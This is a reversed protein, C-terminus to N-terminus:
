FDARLGATITRGPRITLNDPEGLQGGLLNDATFLLGLGRALDRSAMIRLHTDGDYARWYNRLRPGTLDRKPPGNKSLYATALALQDYNMWDSARTATFAGFWTAGTWSATISASRGPIGLLRDGPQLDGSYKPALVQVRSDVFTVAAALALAGRHVSSQLEWGQNGIEGVNQLQYRMRRQLVGAHMQTDVGVAVNQILGSALQDFRTLQAFFTRGVSLEVGAEVGTQSEPDLASPVNTRRRQDVTALARLTTQAPRIGKGYAARLKIEAMGVPQVVAVGLVPLLPHRESGNFADNRELRLGASVFVRDHWTAALHSLVGVNHNWSGVNTDRPVGPRAPRLISMISRQHLVSQEVGLTLMARLPDGEDGLRAVSNARITMRGASGRAARLASDVGSRYPILPESVNDLHYGDVGTILSHTWRGASVFVAGAGLTLQQVSQAGDPLLPSSSTTAPLADSLLPNTGFGSRHSMFRATTSLTTRAGVHRADGALLLQQTPASPLVAGSQSFQAGIGASKLSNGVRLALRQEHTAALAAGYASSTAGATSVLRLRPRGGPAGDHRTLVNVVGSIADSGYLASGQPGRIVEVRDVVDPDLHTVLLPNAVEIGDIYVKPASMGFSSAGRLAGYQAVLSSPAGQWMWMGPVAVNLMDAVSSISYRRLQEGEIVDMSITLPRRANPLAQDTVVIRDLMGIDPATTPPVAGGGVLAPALVVRGAVVTAEAGMGDLLATLVRGLPEGSAAICVRRDLPLIDSAYALEVNSLASLRDLGERLTV